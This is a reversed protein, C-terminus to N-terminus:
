CGAAWFPEVPIFLIGLIAPLYTDLNQWLNKVNICLIYLITESIRDMRYM